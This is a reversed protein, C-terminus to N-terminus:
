EPKIIRVCLVNAEHSSGNITTVLDNKFSKTLVYDWYVFDGKGLTSSWYFNDNFKNYFKEKDKYLSKLQEITPLDWDKFGELDLNKCYKKAKNYLLKKTTIDKTDQWMLQDIIVINLPKNNNKDKINNNINSVGNLALENQLEKDKLSNNNLNYELKYFKNAYMDKIITYKDDGNRIEIKIKKASPINLIRNNSNLTREFRDNIYLYGDKGILLLKANAKKFKATYSQIKLAKVNINRIFEKTYFSIDAIAKLEINTNSKVQYHEIPADGIYKDNLYIKTKEVKSNINVFGISECVDDNAIITNSLISLLLIYKFLM